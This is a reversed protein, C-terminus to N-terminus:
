KNFKLENYNVLLNIFNNVTEDVSNNSYGGAANKHGGGNFYKKAFDAVSFDGISRFSVYTGDNKQNFLAAVEINEISLAYNVLGDTEGQKLYFRSTDEKKLVIYAVKYDNVIRLCRSLVYGLFRMRAFRNNGFLNKNVLHPKIDFNHMLEAALEHVRYTMNQTVFHGTDSLIGSYLCIAVDNNVCQSYSLRLLEYVIECTSSAESNIICKVNDGTFDPVDIHHDIICINKGEVLSVIEQDIRLKQNFDLCFVVDSNQIHWIATSKFLSDFVLVNDIFPMWGFNRNYGNTAIVKCEFNLQKLVGCLALAAGICDGDVNKHILLTAVKKESSGIFSELLNRFSSYDCNGM